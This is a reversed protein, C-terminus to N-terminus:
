CSSGQGSRRMTSAIPARMNRSIPTSWFFSETKRQPMHMPLPRGDERLSKVETGALIIGAELTEMIEYNHRAKRNQARIDWGRGKEEKSGHRSPREKFLGLGALATDVRVKAADGIPVLPPRTDFRLPWVRSRTNPRGRVPTASCQRM